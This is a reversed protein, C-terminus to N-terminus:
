ERIGEELEDRLERVIAAGSAGHVRPRAGVEKLWKALPPREIDDTLVEVAYRSMSTGARQARRGLKERMSRPLRRVQVDVSRRKKM